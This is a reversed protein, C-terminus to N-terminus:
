AGLIQAVTKGRKAAVESPTCVELLAKITARAVNHHNSSGLIKATINRIGVAEFMARMTGGAIIGICSFITSMLSKEFPKKALESVM